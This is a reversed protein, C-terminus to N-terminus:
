AAIREPPQDTGATTPTKDRMALGSSNSRPSPISTDPENLNRIPYTEWNDDRRNTNRICIRPKDRSIQARSATSVDHATHLGPTPSPRPAGVGSDRCCLTTTRSLLYLLVVYLECASASGATPSRRPHRGVLRLGSSQQRPTATRSFLTFTCVDLPLINRPLAHSSLQCTLTVLRLNPVVQVNENSFNKM